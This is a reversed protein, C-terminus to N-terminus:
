IPGNIKIAKIAIINCLDKLELNLSSKAREEKSAWPGLVWIVYYAIILFQHATGV